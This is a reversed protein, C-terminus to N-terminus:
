IRITKGYTPRVCPIGPYKTRLLEKLGALDVDRSMPPLANDFHSLLIRKPRIRGIIADAERVLDNNGQYPLILLDVQEPYTETEDLGLSGLLLIEKGEAFIDFVATEGGEKFNHNAYLLFPVNGIYRLVRLPKLTLNMYKRDFRIHHGKLIRIRLDGVPLEMGPRFVAIQDCGNSFRELTEATKQGCFVTADSDEILEPVFFSHDFHCHTIFILDEGRFEDLTNPNTGGRLEVFPDILIRASETELVFAATGKWTIRM